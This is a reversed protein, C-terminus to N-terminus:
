GEQTEKPTCAAIAADLGFCEKGAEKLALLAPLVRPDALERAGEIAWGWWDDATLISEFEHIMLSAAREDKKLAPGRIAESRIEPDEDHAREYLAIRVEENDLCLESTLGFTAWDRVDRDEDGTLEVLARVARTDSCYSGLATAVGERVLSSTSCRLSVLPEISRDDELWGLAMAIAYLLDVDTAEQLLGLIIETSESRFPMEPTGLQALIDVGVTKKNVEESSCLGRAIDFVEQTGRHQLTWVARWLEDEDEETLVVRVLESITRHDDKPSIYQKDETTETM